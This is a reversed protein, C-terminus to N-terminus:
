HPCVGAHTVFAVDSVTTIDLNPVQRLLVVTATDAPSNDLTQKKIGQPTVSAATASVAASGTEFEAQILARCLL